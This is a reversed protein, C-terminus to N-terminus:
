ESRLCRIPDAKSAQLAPLICALAASALLVMPAVTFVVPDMPKLGTLLSSLVRGAALAILFGTLVSVAALTMSRKFVSGVVGAGTAGLAMRIGFEHRRQAVTYSTVGYIGVSALLLAILSLSFVLSSFFKFGGMSREIWGEMSMPYTLPVDPDLERLASKVAPLLSMPDGQAVHIVLAMTPRASQSYPVYVESFPKVNKHFSRVDGIVGVITRTKGAITVQEGLPSRGEWYRRAMTENIVAVPQSTATDAEQLTRGSRLPIGLAALYGPDVAALGARQDAPRAPAIRGAAEFTERPMVDGTMPLFSGLGASKVGPLEAIRAAIQQYFAIRQQDVRDDLTMHATLLGTTRFGPDTNWVVMLGKAMLGAGALLVMSFMVQSFVLTNKLRRRQVGASANLAGEKLTEVLNVRAGQLAPIVGVVLGTILSLLVAFGLVRSDTQVDFGAANTGQALKRLGATAWTNLLVGLACGSSSLLLSEVIFQRLIRGRSAGLAVKTAIEGARVPIRALLLNAVNACVIAMVFAVAGLLVIFIQGDGSFDLERVGRVRVQWGKNTAPHQAAVSSAITDMEARAKEIRTGSALRGVAILWRNGRDASAKLTLPLVLDAEQFAAGRLSFQAPLVGVITHPQRGVHITAGAIDTRGGFQRQWYGHTLLVVRSADLGHEDKLFDRGLVPRFRLADLAGESAYAARVQGSEARDRVSVSRFGLAIMSEFSRSQARWELFEPESVGGDAGLSPNVTFLTAMRGPEHYAMTPRFMVANLVSFITSGGAIGLALTVVAVTTFGPVKGLARVATRLDKWGDDLFGQISM